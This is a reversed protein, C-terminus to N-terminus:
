FLFAYIYIMENLRVSEEILIIEKQKSLENTGLCIYNIYLLFNLSQSRRLEDKFYGEM